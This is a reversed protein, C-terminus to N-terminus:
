EVPMAVLEQWGGLAFLAARARGHQKEWQGKV